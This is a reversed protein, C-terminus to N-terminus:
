PIIIKISKVTSLDESHAVAIYMGPYLDGLYISENGSMKLIKATRGYMDYIRLCYLGENGHSLQLTQNSVSYIVNLGSSNEPDLVETVLCNMYDSDLEIVDGPILDRGDFGPYDAPYSYARFIDKSGSTTGQVMPGRTDVPSVFEWVINGITDVEFLTGSGGENIFTNGNELQQANSLYTSYFEGPNSYVETMSRPLFIGNTDRAYSGDPNFIPKFRDVSSYQLAGSPRDWGNNFFIIEGENPFGPPIKYVGHSGYMLLDVPGGLGVAEPNGWRFILDGKESAAEATTTNHDIIWLENNNRSNLIVEDRIPDYDVSNVHWWDEDDWWGPGAYNIDVKHINESIIGYNSRTSDYDQVFHDKLHWEWVVQMSDMGIPEIELVAESWLSPSSLREIDRGLEIQVQTGIREWILVLLNGNPMYKVDHHQIITPTNFTYSWVLENEWNILEILGGTSAQFFFPSTVKATRLVLGNPLFYSSLGPISAREWENILRGCRDVLYSNEYAMPSFFVYGGSADESDHLLGITQQSQAANMCLVLLM